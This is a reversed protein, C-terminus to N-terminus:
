RQHFVTLQIVLNVIQLFEQQQPPLDQRPLQKRFQIKLTVKLEQRRELWTLKKCLLLLIRWWKIWRTRNCALDSQNQATTEQRNPWKLTRTLIALLPPLVGGELSRQAKVEVWLLRKDLWGSRNWTHSTFITSNTALSVEKDWLFPLLEWNLNIWIKLLWVKIQRLWSDMTRLPVTREKTTGLNTFAM